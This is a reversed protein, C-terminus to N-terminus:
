SQRVHLVEAKPERCGERIASDLKGLVLVLQQGGLDLQDLPQALLELLAELRSLDGEVFGTLGSHQM